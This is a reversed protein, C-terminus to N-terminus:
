IQLKALLIRQLRDCSSLLNDVLKPVDDQQYVGLELLAAAAALKQAGVMGAGGKVAHGILRISALDNTASANLIEGARARADSLCTEYIERVAAEPMMHLLKAYIAEDLDTQIGPALAPESAPSEQPQLAAQLAALDLPKKLFGDYGEAVDQTASMALLKAQPVAARLAVALDRGRIGPMRLDALLVSPLADPRLAGLMEIAAAGDAAQVVEYGGSRLLLSIVALSLADDDIVMLRRHNTAGNTERSM